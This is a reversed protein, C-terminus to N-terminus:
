WYGVTGINKGQCLKQWRSLVQSFVNRKRPALLPVFGLDKDLQLLLLNYYFLNKSLILGLVVIILM